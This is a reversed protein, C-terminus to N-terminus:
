LLQILHLAQYRLASSESRKPLYTFIGNEGVQAWGRDM